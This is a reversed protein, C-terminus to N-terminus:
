SFHPAGTRNLPSEREMTGVGLRLAGTLPGSPRASEREERPGVHSADLRFGRDRAIAAAGDRRDRSGEARRM